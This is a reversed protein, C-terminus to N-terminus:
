GNKMRRFDDTMREKGSVRLTDTITFSEIFDDALSERGEMACFEDATHSIRVDSEAKNAGHFFKRGVRGQRHSFDIRGCTRDAQGVGGQWAGARRMAFADRRKVRMGHGEPFFERSANRRGARREGGNRDKKGKNLM